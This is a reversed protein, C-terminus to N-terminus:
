KSVTNLAKIHSPSPRSSLQGDGKHAFTKNIIRTDSILQSTTSSPGLPLLLSSARAPPGWVDYVLTHRM